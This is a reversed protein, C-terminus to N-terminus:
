IALFVNILKLRLFRFRRFSRRPTFSTLLLLLKGTIAARVDRCTVPSCEMLSKSFKLIIEQDEGSLKSCMASKINVDKSNVCVFFLLLSAVLYIEEENTAEVTGNEFKFEPYKELIFEEVTHAELISSKSEDLNFNKRLHSIINLLSETNVTREDEDTEIFYCNIQWISVM